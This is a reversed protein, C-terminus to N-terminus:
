LLYIWSEDIEHKILSLKFLGEGAYGSLLGMNESEQSITEKYDYKKMDVTSKLYKNYKYRRAINGIQSHGLYNFVQVHSYCTINLSQRLSDLRIYKAINKQKQLDYFFCFVDVQESFSMEHYSKLLIDVIHSLCEWALSTNSNHTRMCWYYGYGILGKYFSFNHDSNYLVSRLMRKDLDDYIDDETDIFKNKILYDLGVGIGAIGTDYDAPTYSHIQSQIEAILDLAYNEFLMENTYRAYEFFFISIGMKGHILGPCETLTGNIILTDILNSLQQQIAKTQIQLM